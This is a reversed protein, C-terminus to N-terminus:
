ILKRYVEARVVHSEVDSGRDRFRDPVQKFSPEVILGALAAADFSEQLHHIARLIATALERDKPDGAALGPVQLGNGSVVALSPQSGNSM